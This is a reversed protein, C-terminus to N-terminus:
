AVRSATLAAIFTLKVYCVKSSNKDLVGQAAHQGCLHQLSSRATVFVAHHAHVLLAVAHQVRAVVQAGAGGAAAHQQLALVGAWDAPSVDRGDETDEM